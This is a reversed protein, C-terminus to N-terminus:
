YIIRMKKTDEDTDMERATSTTLYRKNSGTTEEEVYPDNLTVEPACNDLQCSHLTSGDVYIAKVGKTGNNKQIFDEGAYLKSTHMARTKTNTFSSYLSKFENSNRAEVESEKLILMRLEIVCLLTNINESWESTIGRNTEYSHVETETVTYEPSMMADEKTEYTGCLLNHLCKKQRKKLYLVYELEGILPATEGDKRIEIIANSPLIGQFKRCTTTVSKTKSMNENMYEFTM